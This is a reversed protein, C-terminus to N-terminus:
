PQRKQEPPEDAELSTWAEAVCRSHPWRQRAAALRARAAEARGAQQEARALRVSPEPEEVAGAPLEALLRRAQGAEGDEIHLAALHWQAEASSGRRSAAERYLQSAQARDGRGEALRGLAVLPSGSAADRARARAFAEEAEDLRGLEELILGLVLHTGMDESGLEVAERAWREADALRGTNLASNARHVELFYGGGELPELLALAEAHRHEATLTMAQLLTLMLPLGDKPDTGVTRGLSADPVRESVRYGLAELQGRREAGPELRSAAQRPRALREALQSDLQAVRDPQADALNRLEHPDGSIDYLEPRPARVYKFTESRLGLLASWGFDFQPALTEVYLARDGTSRGEVLDRLDMGQTEPLPALGALGLLTPAVDVLGVPEAVVHGAPLGPARLLLPVRQTADYITLSHSIEGHEGRSEGHDSTVLVATGGDPFRHHLAALFRGLEADTFAIEGAYPDAPFAAAFGPPPDYNGHPDYLHVWLFFRPPASSLWALAADTVQDATRESHGFQAAVRLSMQDDYVDFGRDLGHQRDLVVTGLFAATAFGAEQFREALTPIDDALRFIGNHRVGHRPPELGTLLTTHSPLTIPTPSIATEFRVGERALADLTPTHARRAGYCGVHDARLTDISVLVVRELTGSPSCGLVLILSVRALAQVVRTM